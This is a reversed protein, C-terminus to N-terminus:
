YIGMLYGLRLTVDPAADDFGFGLAVRIHNSGALLYDLGGSIEGYNSASRWNFEGLASLDRALPYLAGGGFHIGTDRGGTEISELGANALVVLDTNTQYRLAGFLDVNFNGAGVEDAGVPLDVWAGASVQPNEPRVRYRAYGRLDSLGTHDNAGPADYSFHDLSWRLGTEFDTAAKFAAQGGLMWGSASGYDSLDFFPEIAFGPVIVADEIWTQFPRVENTAVRPASRLQARTPPPPPTTTSQGTEQAAGIMASGALLAAVVTFFLTTRMFKM